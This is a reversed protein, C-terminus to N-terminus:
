IARYTTDASPAPLMQGKNIGHPDSSQAWPLVFVQPQKEQQMVTGACPTQLCTYPQTKNGFLPFPLNPLIILSKTPDRIARPLPSFSTKVSGHHQNTGLLSLRLTRFGSCSAWCEVTLAAKWGKGNGVSSAPLSKGLWRSHGPSVHSSHPKAQGGLCVPLVLQAMPNPPLHALHGMPAPSVASSSPLALHSRWCGNM